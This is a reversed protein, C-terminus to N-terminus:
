EIARVIRRTKLRRARLQGTRARSISLSFFCESFVMVANTVSFSAKRVQACDMFSTKRFISSPAYGTTSRPNQRDSRTGGASVRKELVTGDASRVRAMARADAFVDANKSCMSSSAIAVLPVASNLDLFSVFDYESVFDEIPSTEAAGTTEAATGTREPHRRRARDVRVVRDRVVTGLRVIARALRELEVKLFRAQRM